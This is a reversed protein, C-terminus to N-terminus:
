YGYINEDDGADDCSIHEAEGAEEIELEIDFLDTKLDEIERELLVIQNEIKAKEKLLKSIDM